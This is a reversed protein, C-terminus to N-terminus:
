RMELSYPWFIGPFAIASAILLWGQIMTPLLFAVTFLVWGIGRWLTGIPGQSRDLGYIYLVGGIISAAAASWTATASDIAGSATLAGIVVVAGFTLAALAALRGLTAPLYRFINSSDATLM